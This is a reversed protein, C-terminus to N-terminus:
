TSRACATSFLWVRPPRVDPAGDRGDQRLHLAGGGSGVGIIVGVILAVLTLLLTNKLGDVLYEWRDAQIFNLEFEAKIPAFWQEFGAKLAAFWEAM